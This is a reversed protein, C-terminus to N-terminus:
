GRTVESEIKYLSEDNPKTPFCNWLSWKWGTKFRKDRQRYWVIWGGCYCPNTKLRPLRLHPPAIM